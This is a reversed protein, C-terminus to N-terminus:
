PKLLENTQLTKIPSTAYPFAKFVNRAVMRWRYSDAKSGPCYSFQYRQGNNRDQVVDPKLETVEVPNFPCEVCVADSKPELELLFVEVNRTAGRLDATIAFCMGPTIEATVEEWAFVNRQDQPVPPGKKGCGVAALALILSSLALTKLIRANNTM